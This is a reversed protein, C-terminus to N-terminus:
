LQYSSSEMCDAGGLFVASLLCELCFMLRYGEVKMSHKALNTNRLGWQTWKVDRMVYIHLPGIGTCNRSSEFYELVGTVINTYKCFTESPYEELKM